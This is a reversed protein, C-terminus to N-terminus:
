GTVKHSDGYEVIIGIIVGIISGVFCGGMTHLFINILALNSHSHKWSWVSSDELLVFNHQITTASIVALGMECSEFEVMDMIKGPTKPTKFPSVPWCPSSVGPQIESRDTKIWSCNSSSYSQSCLYIKSDSTEVFPLNKENISIKIAKEPPHGLPQWKEFWGENGLHAFLGSLCAMLAMPFIIIAGVKIERNWDM